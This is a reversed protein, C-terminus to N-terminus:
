MFFQAIQKVIIMASFAVTIGILAYKVIKKADDIRHDNGASTLYSLAGIFLMILSLIGTIGLLFNLVNTLIQSLSMAGSVEAPTANWGLIGSIEKLFSPAAIGLALGIMAATIAGKAIKMQGDNGASTIYMVAGIVIFVLSLLVIINQLTSLLATLVEQVTNYQLPNEFSTSQSNSTSSNTNKESGLESQTGTKESGLESQTSTATSGSKGTGTAAGTGTPVCCLSNISCAGQPRYGAECGTDKVAMCSSGTKIAKCSAETVRSVWCANGNAFTDSGKICEAVSYKDSTGLNSSSNCVGGFLNGECINDVVTLASAEGSGGFFFATAFVLATLFQLHLSTKKM